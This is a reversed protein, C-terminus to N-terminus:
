GLGESSRVKLGRVIYRTSVEKGGWIDYDHQTTPMQSSHNGIHTEDGGDESIAGTM